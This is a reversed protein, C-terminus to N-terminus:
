VDGTKALRRFDPGLLLDIPPASNLQYSVRDMDSEFDNINGLINVWKQPLGNVGFVQNDGYWVDIIPPTIDELNLLRSRIISPTWLAMLGLFFLSLLLLSPRKVNDRHSTPKKM